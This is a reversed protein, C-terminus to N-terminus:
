KIGIKLRNNHLIDFDKPVKCDFEKGEVADDRQINVTKLFKSEFKMGERMPYIHYFIIILLIIFLILNLM